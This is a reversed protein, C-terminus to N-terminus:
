ARRHRPRKPHWSRAIGRNGAGRKNPKPNWRRRMEALDARVERISWVSQLGRRRRRLHEAAYEFAEACLGRYDLVVWFLLFHADLQLSLPRANPCRRELEAAPVGILERLISYAESDRGLMHMANARNYAAVPCDPALRTAREFYRLAEAYRRAEHLKLGAKLLGEHDERSKMDQIALCGSAGCDRGRAVPTIYVCFPIAPDAPQPEAADNQRSEHGSRLTQPQFMPVTSPPPEWISHIVVM